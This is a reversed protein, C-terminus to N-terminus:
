PVSCFENGLDREARCSEGHIGCEATTSGCQGGGACVVEQCSGSGDGGDIIGHGEDCATVTTCDDSFPLTSCFQQVKRAVPPHFGDPRGGTEIFSDLQTESMSEYWRFSGDAQRGFKDSFRDPDLWGTMCDKFAKNHFIAIGSAIDSPLPTYGNTSSAAEMLCIGVTSIDWVPLHTLRRLSNSFAPAETCELLVLGARRGGQEDRTKATENVLQLVHPEARPANYAMAGNVVSYGFYPIEQLGSLFYREGEAAGGCPDGGEALREIWSKHKATTTAMVMKLLGTYELNASNSTVVHIDKMEGQALINGWERVLAPDGILVPAMSFASGLWPKPYYMSPKGTNADPAVLEAIIENVKDTYFGFFGANGIMARCESDALAMKVAATWNAEITANWAGAQVKSWVLGEVTITKVSFELDSNVRSSSNDYQCVYESGDVGAVNCFTRKDNIDGPQTPWFYGDISFVCLAGRNDSSHVKNYQVQYEGHSDAPSGPWDGGVNSIDGSNEAARHENRGIPQDSQQSIPLATVSSLAFALCKWSRMVPPPKPQGEKRRGQACLFVALM